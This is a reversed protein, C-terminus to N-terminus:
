SVKGEIKEEKKVLKAKDLIFRGISLAVDPRLVIGFQRERIYRQGVRSKETAKGDEDIEMTVEKPSDLREVYFDIIVDGRPSIGGYAGTVPILRYDKSKEYYVKIIDPMQKPM